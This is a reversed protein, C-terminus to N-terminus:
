HQTAKASLCLKELLYQLLDTDVTTHRLKHDVEVRSVIHLVYIYTYIYTYIHTCIHTYIYACMYICIYMCIYVCLNIVNHLVTKGNHMAMNKVMNPFNTHYKVIIGSFTPCKFMGHLM